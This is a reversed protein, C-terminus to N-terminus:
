LLKVIENRNVRPTNGQTSRQLLAGPELRSARIWRKAVALLCNFVSLSGATDRFPPVLVREIGKGSGVSLSTIKSRRRTVCRLRQCYLVNRWQVRFPNLVV